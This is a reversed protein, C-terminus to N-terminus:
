SDSGAKLITLTWPRDPAWIGSYGLYIQLGDPFGHPLTPTFSYSHQLQDYATQTAEGFDIRDPFTVQWMGCHGDHTCCLLCRKPHMAILGAKGLLPVAQPYIEMWMSRQPVPIEGARREVLRQVEGVCGSRSVGWATSIAAFCTVKLSTDLTAQSARSSIM